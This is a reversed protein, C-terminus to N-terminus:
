ELQLKYIVDENLLTFGLYQLLIISNTNTSLAYALVTVIGEEKMWELSKVLLSAGIKKRRESPLVGAIEITGEKVNNKKNYAPDIYSSVIGVIRGDTEREVVFYSSKVGPFILFREFSNPTMELPSSEDRAFSKNLVELFECKEQPFKPPRVDYGSPTIVHPPGNRLDYAFEYRKKFEHFGLQEYFKKWWESVSPVDIQVEKMGRSKLYECVREVLVKGISRPRYEQLISLTLFGCPGGEAVCDPDVYGLAEEVLEDDIFALFHGKMDYNPDSFYTAEVQEPTLDRHRPWDANARNIFSTYIDLDSQKICRIKM